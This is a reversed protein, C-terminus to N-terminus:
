NNNTKHPCYGYWGLSQNCNHCLVRYGEPFNNDQLWKYFNWGGRNKIKERHKTGGGNIHDIALFEIAEENCCACKGGYHNLTRIKLSKRYERLREAEQERFDSNSERKNRLWNKQYERKKDHELMTRGPLTSSGYGRPYQNRFGAHRGTEGCACKNGDESEFRSVRESVANQTSRTQWEM